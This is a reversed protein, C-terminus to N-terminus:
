LQNVYVRSCVPRGSVMQSRHFVDDEFSEGVGGPARFGDRESNDGAYLSRTGLLDSCLCKEVGIAADFASKASATVLGLVLATMTAVLGIGLKVTDRSEENLHHEPLKTRLWLGGLAGGLTCAFVITGVITPNMSGSGVGGRRGVTTGAEM